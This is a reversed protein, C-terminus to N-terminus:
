FPRIFRWRCGGSGSLSATPVALPQGNAASWSRTNLFKSPDGALVEAASGTPTYITTTDWSSLSVYDTNLQQLFFDKQGTINVVRTQMNTTMTGSSLIRNGNGDLNYTAQQRLVSEALTDFQSGVFVTQWVLPTSVGQTSLTNLTKEFLITYSYSQGGQNFETYYRIGLISQSQSGQWFWFNSSTGPTVSYVVM